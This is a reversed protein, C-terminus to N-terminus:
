SLREHSARLWELALAECMLASLLDHRRSDVHGVLCPDRDGTRDHVGAPVHHQEFAHIVTAEM